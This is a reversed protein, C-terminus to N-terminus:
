VEGEQKTPKNNQAKKIWENDNQRGANGVNTSELDTLLVARRDAAGIRWRKSSLQASYDVCVNRSPCV